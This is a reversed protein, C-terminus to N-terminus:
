PIGNERMYEEIGDAIGEAILTQKAPDKLIAEEQPNCLFLTEVLIGPIIDPRLIGFTRPNESRTRVKGDVSGM